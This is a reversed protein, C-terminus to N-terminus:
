ARGQVQGEYCGRLSMPASADGYRDQFDAFIADIEATTLSHAWSGYDLAQAVSEKPTKDRKLEIVVLDGIKMSRLCISSKAM